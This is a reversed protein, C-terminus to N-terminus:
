MEMEAITEAAKKGSFVAFGQCSGECISVDYSESYIGGADCGAAYLHPIVEGEATLVQASTTIKVGGVTTFIGAMLEFAYYPGEELAFLYQPDKGFDEDMGNACFGNYREISAPVIETDESIYLDGTTGQQVGVKKDTLQDVSTIKESSSSSGCATLGLVMATILILSFVKKM